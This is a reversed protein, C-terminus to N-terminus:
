KTKPPFRIASVKAIFFPFYDPGGFHNGAEIRTPLAFGSFRQFGSLHGGFEQERFIRDPNANSWRPFQVTIPRGAEDLTLTVAQTLGDHELTVRASNPGIAQWTVGPALLLAAPTWFMAEAAYRGFASRRHDPTGGMRAVPIIGMAWFRSWNGSDSGSLHMPGRSAKISWIFGHPAALTQSAAMTLYRPADKTGLSFQGSMEIQATTFLPTGPAIAFSFFRRAPEPLHEVMAIDFVKPESPQFALLRAVEIRDERLDWQRWIILLCALVLAALSLIIAAM